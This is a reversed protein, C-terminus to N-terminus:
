TSTEAVFQDSSWLLGVSQPADNQTHTHTHARARARTHDLVEHLLLGQGVLPATAGFVFQTSSIEDM